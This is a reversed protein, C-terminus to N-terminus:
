LVEALEEADFYQRALGLRKSLEALQPRRIRAEALIADNSFIEEATGDAIINKHAMVIVRNFNKAVFEMDHTITIVSIGEEGLTDMLSSLIENGKRDQGATPEDFIIYKPQIALVDAITVFKRIPYPIDFPNKEIYKELQTLMVARDVREKIEKEPLKQYRPM